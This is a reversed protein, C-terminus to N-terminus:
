DDDDAEDRLVEALVNKIVAKLFFGQRQLYGVLVQKRKPGPRASWHVFRKRRLLLRKWLLKM